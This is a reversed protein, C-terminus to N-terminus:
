HREVWWLAGVAFLLFIGSPLAATVFAPWTNLLGIHSFLNNLLIFSVGIMVGSFIKLSIGGSRFHLYGFPLALAIMVFVSFPYLLKKWFAIDYRTTDQNNEALYSKYVALDYASMREPKAFLVSLLSPTIESVLDRHKLKKSSITEAFGAAPLKTGVGSRKLLTETVGNLRWVHNNQYDASKASIIATLRLDRDFEYLKLGRLQGDPQLEAINLFRTGIVAGDIGSERIVDKTWMGSRFEKRLAAGTAELKFKEAMTTAFPAIVEGILMTVIVFVLGIKALMWCAQMTSMSSVRMITFESNSAFRALVYIAGILVAIPMLEYAYSPLRMMVFVFAHHWQYGSHGVAKLEGILDFFAFLALFAMLVFLVARTIQSAFYRQLVTM